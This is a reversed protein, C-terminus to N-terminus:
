MQWEFCNGMSHCHGCSRSTLWRRLLKALATVHWLSVPPLKVVFYDELLPVFAIGVDSLALSAFFLPIRCTYPVPHFSFALLQAILWRWIRRRKNGWLYHSGAALIPDM